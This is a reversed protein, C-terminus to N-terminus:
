CAMVTPSMAVMLYQFRFPKAISTELLYKIWCLGRIIIRVSKCQPMYLTRRAGTDPIAKLTFKEVERKEMLELVGLLEYRVRFVGEILDKSATDVATLFLMGDWDKEMFQDYLASKGKTTDNSWLYLNSLEM